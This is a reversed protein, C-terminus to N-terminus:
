KEGRPEPTKPKTPVTRPAPCTPTVPTKRPAPAQRPVQMEALPPRSTKTDATTPLAKCPTPIRRRRGVRPAAPLWHWPRDADHAALSLLIPGGNINRHPSAKPEHGAHCRRQRDCMLGCRLVMMAYKPLLLTATPCRFCCPSQEHAVHDGKTLAVPAGLRTHSLATTPLKCKSTTAHRSRHCSHPEFRPLM